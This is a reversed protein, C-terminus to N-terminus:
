ACVCMAHSAVFGPSQRRGPYSDGVSESEPIYMALQIDDCVCSCVGCACTHLRLPSITNSTCCVPDQPHARVVGPSRVRNRVYAAHHATRVKETAMQLARGCPRGADATRSNDRTSSGWGRLVWSRVLTSCAHHAYQRWPPGDCNHAHTPRRAAISDRTHDLQAPITICM